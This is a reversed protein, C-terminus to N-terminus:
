NKKELMRTTGQCKKVVDWWGKTAEM